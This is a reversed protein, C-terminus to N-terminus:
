PKCKHSVECTSAGVPNLRLNEPSVGSLGNAAEAAIRGIFPFADRPPHREM